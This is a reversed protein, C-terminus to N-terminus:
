KNYTTADKLRLHRQLILLDFIDRRGASISTQLATLPVVANIDAGRAILLKVMEINNSTYPAHQLPGWDQPYNINAGHDILYEAIETNNKVVAQFLPPQLGASVDAGAEVLLKVVEIECVDVAYWLPTREMRRKKNAGYLDNANTNYVDRWKADVDTGEAILSRVQEVDAKKVAEFLSKNNKAQQIREIM